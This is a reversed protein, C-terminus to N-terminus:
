FGNIEETTMGIDEIDFSGDSHVTISDQVRWSSCDGYQSDHETWLVTAVRMSGEPRASSADNEFLRPLTAKIKAVDDDNFGTVTSLQYNIVGHFVYVGHDISFKTGMTDSGRKDDNGEGNVSKVITTTTVDIPDVSFAPHITVPGKIGVSVSSKEGKKAGKIKYPLLQGFCRVDFWTECAKTRIDSDPISLDIVSEVRSRVSKLPDAPRILINEGSELLRDRIKRKICVDSIEGIGSYNMRPRNQNSPDGNPNANKVECIVTFDVKKSISM